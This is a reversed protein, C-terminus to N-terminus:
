YWAPVRRGLNRSAGCDACVDYVEQTSDDIERYTALCACTHVGMEELEANTYNGSVIM